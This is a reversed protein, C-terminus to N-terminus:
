SSIGNGGAKKVESLKKNTADIFENMSSQLYDPNLSCIGISIGINKSELIEKAGSIMRKGIETATQKNAEPLIVAFEDGGYRFIRDVYNRTNGKIISVIQQILINGEAAGYTDNYKKFGDIDCMMFCLDKNQRKSRQMEINLQEFLNKRNFVGTLEDTTNLEVLKINSQQLQKLLKANERNLRQKELFTKVKHLLDAPNVPKILYEDVNNGTSELATELNTRGTILFFVTFKDKKKAPEVLSLGSDTGLQLDSLIVSYLEKEIFNRAENVTAAADVVYGEEILIEKLTERVDDNDEIVLVKIIEKRNGPLPEIDMNKKEILENIEKLLYEINFPKLLCSYAGKAVITDIVGALDYGTMTIVFAGPKEKKIYELVTIGDIDPLRIDLLAIDFDNEKVLVMAESGSKAQIVSFDKQILIENLTVRDDDSDDVLLIVGKNKPRNKEINGIMEIVKSVNLPKQIITNVGKQQLDTLQNILGGTMLFVITEPHIRRIEELTKIGDIGPMRVDLLVLDYPKQKALEIGKFGDDAIDVLWDHMRLIESLTFILNKDDDVVLISFPRM